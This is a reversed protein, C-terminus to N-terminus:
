IYFFYKLVALAVNNANNYSLVLLMEMTIYLNYVCHSYLIQINNKQVSENISYLICYM